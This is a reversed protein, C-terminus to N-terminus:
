SRQRARSKTDPRKTGKIPQSGDACLKEIQSGLQSLAKRQGEISTMTEHQGSAQLQHKEQGVRMARDLQDITGELQEDVQVSFLSFSEQIMRLLWWRMKELNRVVMEKIFAQLRQTERQERISRPLLEEFLPSSLDASLREVTWAPERLEVIAEEALAPFRPVKLLGAADQRLQEQIEQAYATREKLIDELEVRTVRQIAEREREFLQVAGDRFQSMRGDRQLPTGIAQAQTLLEAQAKGRSIEVAAELNDRLRKEDGVLWDGIEQRRQRATGTYGAFADIKQELEDLPLKLAQEQLALLHDAEAILNLTKHQVAQVLINQKATAALDLLAQELEAMGCQQWADEDGRCRAELGQRASLTFVQPNDIGLKSRLTDKLFCEAEAAGGADLYDIKNLVFLWRTIHPELARLFEVEAATIPPDASLVVIAADCRSLLSLTMDTNHQHTSGVGPTDILVINEALLPSPYYLDVESVKRFNEANDAETVFDKIEALPRHEAGSGNRHVVMDPQAAYRLMVPVATVPLVGQPLVEQGLLANILTSKGRKFQGLVALHLQGAALRDRLELAHRKLGPWLDPQNHLLEILQNLLEQLEM